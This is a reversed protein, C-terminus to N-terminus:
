YVSFIRHFSLDSHFFFLFLLSAPFQERLQRLGFSLLSKVTNVSVNLELAVEKYKKRQILISTIVQRTKEPLHDVASRINEVLEPSFTMAEEEAATQDLWEATSFEKQDRLRNLCTNRVCRFLYSTLAEPEIQKYLQNKIFHYFLDQVVDEAFFDDKLFTGAFLVLPKYYRQFLLRGGKESNQILLALIDHEASPM